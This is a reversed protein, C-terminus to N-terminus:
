PICGILNVRQHEEWSRRAEFFIVADNLDDKMTSFWPRYYSRCNKCVWGANKLANAFENTLYSSAFNKWVDVPKVLEFGIGKGYQDEDELVYSLPQNEFPIKASCIQKCVNCSLHQLYLHPLYRSYKIFNEKYIKETPFLVLDECWYIAKGMVYNMAYYSIFSAPIYDQTIDFEM